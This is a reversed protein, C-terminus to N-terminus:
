FPTDEPNDPTAMEEQTFNDVPGDPYDPMVPMDLKKKIDKIDLKIQALAVEIAHKVYMETVGQNKPPLKFNLQKRGNFEGEEIILEQETGEWKDPNFSLFGNVWEEGHEQTKIGVRWTPKGFKNIMKTGDKKTDTAFVRTVNVKM